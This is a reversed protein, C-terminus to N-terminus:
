NPPPGITAGRIFEPMLRLERQSVAGEELLELVPQLLSRAFASASTVYRAPTPVIFSLFPDEDRSVVSVEAPVERGLQALRTVVTLYHYANAVVLATPPTRQEFLRRVAQSIGPVTADHHVVSAHADSGRYLAVGELFGAESEIDGALRTKQALLALRRHGQSLLIGAAHRCLARHDLDRFPLDVGSHCSGTILCPLGSRAFWQQCPASALALIWCGHPNQRTLKELAARPQPRFYQPGHFVHLRCGRESLRARLEDIWLALTPRLQELPAPALLAVDHSRLGGPRGRAAAVVRNGAGHEARTIGARHLQRLARRLTSRSVQLMECLAREAPLWEPWKGADIHDRLCAVTQAVLSHRLPIGQVAAVHARRGSGPM